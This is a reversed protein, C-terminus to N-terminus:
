KKIPFVVKRVTIVPTEGTHIVVHNSLSRLTTFGNKCYQCKFARDASHVQAHTSMSSKVNSAYPCKDCNFRFPQLELKHHWLRHKLLTCNTTFWKGCTGCIVKLARFRNGCYTCEYPRDPLHVQEHAQLNSSVNSAYPCM